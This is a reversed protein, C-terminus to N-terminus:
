VEMEDWAQTDENWSYNVEPTPWVIPPQWDFDSDLTWSPYPKPAIFVDNTKDYTYGIGACRGRFNNKKSTQVWTFGYGHLKNLFAIGFAEEEQGHENLLHEDDVVCVSQVINNKDVRAFYSM